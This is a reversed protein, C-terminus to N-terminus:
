GGWGMASMDKMRRVPAPFRSGMVRAPRISCAMHLRTSHVVPDQYVASRALARYAALRTSASSVILDRPSKDRCSAHAHLLIINLKVGDLHAIHSVELGLAISTAFQAMPRGRVCAVRLRKRRKTSGAWSHQQGMIAHLWRSDGRGGRRVEVCAPPEVIRATDPYAERSGRSWARSGTPVLIWSAIRGAASCLPRNLLGIRM